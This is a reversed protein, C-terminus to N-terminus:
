LTCSGCVGFFSRGAGAVGSVQELEWSNKGFNSESLQAVWYYWIGPFCSPPGDAVGCRYPLMVGPLSRQFSSVSAISLAKHKLQVPSWRQRRPLLSCLRYFCVPASLFCAATWKASNNQPCRVSPMNCIFNVPLTTGGFALTLSAAPCLKGAIGCVASPQQM